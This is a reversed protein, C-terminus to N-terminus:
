NSMQREPVIQGWFGGPTSGTTLYTFLRVFRTPFNLHLAIKSTNTGPLVPGADPTTSSYTYSYIWPSNVSMVGPTTSANGPILTDDAYWDIGDQSVEEGIRWTTATSSATFQALLVGQDIGAIQAGGAVSYSDFTITTTATGATQYAPSTTAVATQVTPTFQLREAHAFPTSVFLVVALFGTIKIFSKMTLLKVVLSGM